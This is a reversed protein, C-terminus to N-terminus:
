HSARAPGAGKFELPPSIPRSSPLTANIVPAPLPIPRAAVWAYVWESIPRFGPVWRLPLLVLILVPSLYLAHWIAEAGGWRRGDPAVLWARSLRAEMSLEALAPIIDDAQRVVVSM